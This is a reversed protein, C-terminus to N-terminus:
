YVGSVVGVQEESVQRKSARKAKKEVEPQNDGENMPGNGAGEGEPLDSNCRAFGSASTSAGPEVKTLTQRRKVAHQRLATCLESIYVYAKSRKAQTHTLCRGVTNRFEVSSLYEPSSKAHKTRLFDLM